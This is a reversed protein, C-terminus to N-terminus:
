GWEGAAGAWLDRAHRPLTGAIVLRAGGDAHLKSLALPSLLRHESAIDRLRLSGPERVPNAKNLFAVSGLKPRGKRGAAVGPSRHLRRPSDSCGSGYASPCAFVTVPRSASNAKGPELAPPFLCGRLRAAHRRFAGDGPRPQSPSSRSLAGLSQSIWM